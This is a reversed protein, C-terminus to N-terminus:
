IKFLIFQTTLRELVCSMIVNYLNTQGCARACVCFPLAGDALRICLRAITGKDYATYFHYLLGLQDTVKFHDYILSRVRDVSEPWRIMGEEVELFKHIVYSTIWHAVFAPPYDWLHFPCLCLSDPLVGAISLSSCLPSLFFPALVIWLQDKSDCGVTLSSM